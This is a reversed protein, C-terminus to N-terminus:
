HSMLATADHENRKRKRITEVYSVASDSGVWKFYDEIMLWRFECKYANFTVLVNVDNGRMCAYLVRATQGVAYAHM